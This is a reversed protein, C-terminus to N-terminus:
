DTNGVGAVFKEIDTAFIIAENGIAMVTQGQIYENLKNQNINLDKCLNPLSSAPVGSITYSAIIQLKNKHSM